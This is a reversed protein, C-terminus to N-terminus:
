KDQDSKDVDYRILMKDLKAQIDDQTLSTDEEGLLGLVKKISKDKNDVVVAYKDETDRREMIVVEIDLNEM